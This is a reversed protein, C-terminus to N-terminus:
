DEPVRTVTMMGAYTLVDRGGIELVRGTSALCTLAAVLYDLVNRIAIPQIRTFVWRPCLMVPLRETLYRIMEFSLSGSGVIVAARFETVPVGAERLAAGTEQRSRLHPSLNAQPDGLGGLYVIREVSAAKAAGACNRAAMLDRESFDSGGGLSHVLYYVAHVGRM